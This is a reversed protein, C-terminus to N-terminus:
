ANIYRLFEDWDLGHGPDQKRVDLDSHRIDELEGYKNGLMRRIHLASEYQESTIYNHKIAAWLKPLDYSGKVLFEIGISGTNNDRAHWAKREDPVCKIVTGCPEILYHASLGLRKLWEWASYNKGENNIYAGMAHWVVRVPKHGDGYAPLPKEIFM